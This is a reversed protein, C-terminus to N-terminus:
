ARPRRRRMVIVLIVLAIIVVVACCCGGILGGGRTSYPRRRELDLGVDLAQTVAPSLNSYVFAILAYM